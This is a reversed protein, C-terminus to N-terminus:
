QGQGIPTVTQGCLYPSKICHRRKL